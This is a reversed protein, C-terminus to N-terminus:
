VKPTIRMAVAPKPIEGDSLKPQRAGWDRALEMFGRLNEDATRRWPETQAYEEPAEAYRALFAALTEGHPPAETYRELGAQLIQELKTTFVLHRRWRHRDFSFETALREGALQGFDGLAKVLDPPMALNLGGEGPRLLVTAVRERYGPLCGQLVDRWEQMTDIIAGLFGGMSAIPRLPRVIGKRASKPLVVRQNPENSGPRHADLSIGFTPHSPWPSDFFHIPFNSCIGGDSFWCAQPVKRADADMLTFDRTHLPVASLLVPFSLSMRVAVVVPLHEARPFYRFGDQGEVEPCHATMFDVLEEGFLDRFESEKWLFIDTTFPLRYPRSQGLCTTMIQLDIDPKKPDPGILDGFTLPTGNQHALGDFLATLWATLAPPRGDMTAGSCLGFGNRPLDRAFALWLRFLLAVVVGVVLTVFAAVAWGLPADSRWAVGVLGLAPLAGLGVSPAYGLLLKGLAGVLKDGASGKATGALAADFLPELAPAPQFLGLLEEAIRNPLEKLQAFGGRTRGKEAAAAAAAAIAGASAGGICKFRYKKSLETIALPYVVGSTIGGKMVLDCYPLDQGSGAM